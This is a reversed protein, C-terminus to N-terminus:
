NAALNDNKGSLKKRNYFYNLNSCIASLLTLQHPALWVLEHPSGGLMLEGNECIKIQGRFHLKITYVHYYTLSELEISQVAGNFAPATVLTHIAKRFQSDKTIIDNVPINPM